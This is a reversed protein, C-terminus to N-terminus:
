QGAIIELDFDEYRKRLSIFVNNDKYSKKLIITQKKIGEGSASVKYKEHLYKNWMVPINDHDHNEDYFHIIDHLTFCLINKFKEIEEM